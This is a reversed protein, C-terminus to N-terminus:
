CSRELAEWLAALCGRSGRVQGAAPDRGAALRLLVEGRVAEPPLDGSGGPRRFSHVETSTSSYSRLLCGKPILVVKHGTCEGAKWPAFVAHTAPRPPAARRERPGRAGFLAAAACPLGGLGRAAAHRVASAQESLPFSLRGAESLDGRWQLSRSPKDRERM